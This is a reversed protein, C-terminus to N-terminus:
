SYQAPYTSTKKNEDTVKRELPNQKCCISGFHIVGYLLHVPFYYASTPALHRPLFTNSGIEVLYLPLGSLTVMVIM